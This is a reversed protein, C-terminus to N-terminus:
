GITPKHVKHNAKIKPGPLEPECAKSARMNNVSLHIDGAHFTWMGQVYIQVMITVPVTYTYLFPKPETLRNMEIKKNNLWLFAEFM